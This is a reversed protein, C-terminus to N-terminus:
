AGAFGKAFGVYGGGNAGGMMGGGVSTLASSFLGFRGEQRTLKSKAKYNMANVKHGWAERNANSRITLAELEGTAATDSLMDIASGSALDVGNAALAASQAGKEQLIRQRHQKEEITGRAIADKSLRGEIKANQDAVDANYMASQYQSYMGVAQGAAMMTVGITVPDCM